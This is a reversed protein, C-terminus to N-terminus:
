EKEDFSSLVLKGRKMRGYCFDLTALVSFKLLCTGRINHFVYAMFQQKARTATKAREMARRESRRSALLDDQERREARLQMWVISIPILFSVWAKLFM